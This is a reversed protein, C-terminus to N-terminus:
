FQLKNDKSVNTTIIEDLLEDFNLEYITNLNECKERLVSVDTEIEFSESFALVIINKYNAVTLCLCRKNFVSFVLNM